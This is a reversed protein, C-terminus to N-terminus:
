DNAIKLMVTVYVCICVVLYINGIVVGARDSFVEKVLEFHPM